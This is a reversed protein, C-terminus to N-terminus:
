QKAEYIQKIEQASLLRTDYVRFNDITMNSGNLNTNNLKLSGGMVFMTGTDYSSMSGGDEDFPNVSETVTSVYLGDVYLM